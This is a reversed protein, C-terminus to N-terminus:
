KEMTYVLNLLQARSNVGIKNFINYVHKKVTSLSVSLIESIESNTRGDILEALVDQERTSLLFKNATIKLPDQVTQNETKVLLKILATEIEEPSFIKENTYLEILQNRLKNWETENLM